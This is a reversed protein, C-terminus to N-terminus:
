EKIFKKLSTSSLSNLLLFYMGSNLSSVDISYQDTNLQRHDTFLMRGTIDTIQISSFNPQNVFDINLTNSCPNPYLTIEKKIETFNDIGSIAKCLVSDIGGSSVRGSDSSTIAGGSGVISGSGITGGSSVVGRTGEPICVEGATDLKIVFVDYDGAGYSNTFGTIAFGLDRTQIISSGENDGSGGITRTWRLNGVSDLRVVYVDMNYGSGASDSSGTIVYGHDKTQVISAGETVGLGTGITKTWEINGYANLKLMYVDSYYGAYSNSGGTIAYGGDDTQIISNGWEAGGGISKTWQLSGVSNLKVVYVNIGYEKSQYSYTSGVLIYGGDKTLVISSADDNLGGGITKTWQINGVSDLKVVYFDDSGAGYSSTSGGIIYGGDKTQVISYGIDENTGGITKTWKINGGGDLKIVYVNLGAGYVSDMYGTIAFGGDKTQIISYGRSYKTTGVVKTWQQMGLSDMKIIYVNTIGPGYSWTYGTVVYGGDNTQIISCGFDSKHGGITVAWEKIQANLCTFFASCFFFTLFLFHKKM